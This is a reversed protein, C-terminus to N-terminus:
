SNGNLRQYTAIDNEIAQAVDVLYSWEGYDEHLQFDNDSPLNNQFDNFDTKYKRQFTSLRKHIASLKRREDRILHTVAERLASRLLKDGIKPSLEAIPEPINLTVTKMLFEKEQKV